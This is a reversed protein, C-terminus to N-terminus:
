SNAALAKNFREFRSRAVPINLETGEFFLQYNRANGKTYSINKINVLFTRHTRIISSYHALEEEIRQITARYLETKVEDKIKTYVEIYNGDSKIFLLQNLNFTINEAQINSPINVIIDDGKEENNKLTATLYNNHILSQKLNEKLLITYNIWFIIASIILGTSLAYFVVKFFFKTSLFEANNNSISLLFSYNSSVITFLLLSVLSLEKIINWKDKTNESLIYKTFFHLILIVCCFIILGFIVSVHLKPLTLYQNAFDEDLRVYNLIGSILGVVVAIIVTKGLTFLFPYPKKLIKIM